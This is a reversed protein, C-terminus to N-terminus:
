DLLYNTQLTITKYGRSITTQCPHLNLVETWNALAPKVIKNKIMFFGRARWFPINHRHLNSPITRYYIKNLVLSSPTGPVLPTFALKIYGNWDSNVGSIELIDHTLLSSFYKAMLQDITENDAGPYMKNCRARYFNLQEKPLSGIWGYNLLETPIEAKSNSIEAYDSAKILEVFHTELSLATSFFIDRTTITSERLTHIFSDYNFLKILTEFQEMYTLMSQRISIDDGELYWGTVDELRITYLLGPKYHTSVRKHLCAMTKIASIEAIDIGQNIIPKMTASPVLVPIPQNVSIYYSIVKRLAKQSDDNPVPGIRTQRTGILENLIAENQSENVVPKQPFDKKFFSIVAEAHSADLGEVQVLLDNNTM